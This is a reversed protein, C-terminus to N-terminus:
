APIRMLVDRYKDIVLVEPHHLAREYHGVLHDPIPSVLCVETEGVSVSGIPRFPRVIKVVVAPIAFGELRQVHGEYWFESEQGRQVEAVIRSVFNSTRPISFGLSHPEDVTLGADALVNPEYNKGLSRLHSMLSVFWEPGVDDLMMTSRDLINSM